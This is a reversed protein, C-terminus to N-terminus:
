RRATLLKLLVLGGLGYAVLTSNNSLWQAIGVGPTTPPMGPPKLAAPPLGGPLNARIVEGADVISQVRACKHGAPYSTNPDCTEMTNVVGPPTDIEVTILNGFEDVDYRLEGMGAGQRYRTLISNDCVQYLGARAVSKPIIGPM